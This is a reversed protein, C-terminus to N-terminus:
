LRSINKSIGLQPTPNGYGVGRFIRVRRFGASARPLERFRYIAYVDSSDSYKRRIGRKLETHGYGVGSM